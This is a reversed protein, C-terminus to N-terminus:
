PVDFAPRARHANPITMGTDVNLLMAAIFCAEREQDIHFM